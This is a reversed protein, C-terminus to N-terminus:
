EVCQCPRVVRELYRRTVVYGAHEPSGHDGALEESTGDLRILESVACVISVVKALLIVTGRAEHHQVTRYVQAPLIVDIGPWGCLM